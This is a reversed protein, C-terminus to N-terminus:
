LPRWPEIDWPLDALLRPAGGFLAGARAAFEGPGALAISLTALLYCQEWQQGDAGVVVGSVEVDIRAPSRPYTRGHAWRLLLWEGSALRKELRTAAPGHVPDSRMVKARAHQQARHERTAEADAKGHLQKRLEGINGGGSWPIPVSDILRSSLPGRPAPEDLPALLLEAMGLDSLLEQHDGAFLEAEGGDWVKLDNRWHPHGFWRDGDSVYALRVQADEIRTSEVHGVFRMLLVQDALEGEIPVGLERGLAGRDLVQVDLTLATALERLVAREFEARTEGDRARRCAPYWRGQAVQEAIAPACASTLVAGLFLHRAAGGRFLEIM